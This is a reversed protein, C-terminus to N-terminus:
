ARGELGKPGLFDGQPESLGPWKSHPQSRAWGRPGGTRCGSARLGRGVEPTGDTLHAQARQKPFAGLVFPAPACACLHAPLQSRSLLAPDSGPPQHAPSPLAARPGRRDRPDPGTTVPVGVLGRGQASHSHQGPCAELGCVSVWLGAQAGFMPSPPPASHRPLCSPGSGPASPGGCPASLRPIQAQQGQPQYGPLILSCCWWCLVAQPGPSPPESALLVLAPPSKWRPPPPGPPGPAPGPTQPPVQSLGMRDQDRFQRSPWALHPRLCTSPATLHPPRGPWVPGQPSTPNTECVGPEHHGQQSGTGEPQRTSFPGPSWASRPFLTPHPM